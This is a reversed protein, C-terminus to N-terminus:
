ARIWRGDFWYERGYPGDRYRLGRYSDGAIVVAGNWRPYNCYAQRYSGYCDDYTTATTTRYYPYDYATYAPEYYTGCASLAVASVLAAAGITTKM